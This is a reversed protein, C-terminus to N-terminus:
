NAMTESDNMEEKAEAIAQGWPMGKDQKAQAFALLVIGHHHGFVEPDASYRTGDYSFLGWYILAFGIVNQGEAQRLSDATVGLKNLVLGVICGISQEPTGYHHVYQCETTDYLGGNPVLGNENAYIYDAGRDAIAEDLKAVVTDYDPIPIATIM